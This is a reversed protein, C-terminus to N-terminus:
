FSWHAFHQLLEQLMAESDQLNPLRPSPFAAIRLVYDRGSAHLHYHVPSSHRDGVGQGQRFQGQAPHGIRRPLGLACKARQHKYRKAFAQAATGVADLAQWVNRGSLITEFWGNGQPCVRRGLDVMQRLSPSEARAVRFGDDPLGCADRLKKGLTVFRAAFFEDLEPPTQFQGFGKRSKSGVGGLACLWWLPAQAQELVVEKGIPRSSAPIPQGRADRLVFHAQRAHLTLTWRTGAPVYCRQKGGDNMGYSHYWLGQTTKRDPPRPLANKRAEAQKDYAVAEVKGLPRVELRIAGGAETDGWLAAEMSRLTVVDVYGAHMARWWWRLLGRLTAPRLDCDDAKQGAGALFGPTALELTAPFVDRGAPAAPVPGDPPRFSGYGAVTKAGCGLHTLAGDLWERAQRLLEDPVDDRRKALYGSFGQGASVALFYVPVPGHWDGPPEPPTAQYYGDHHNNCIDVILKPLSEPWADHFVIAGAAAADEDGHKGAGDPKWPKVEGKGLSDSGPAWGFVREITRWGDVRNGSPLSCLWVTEAYARAMGKLGTGPLYAFGYVPHLCLGANELATARALHLTLPGATTRKWAIARRALVDAQFQENRRHRVERLLDLDGTARIAEALVEKQAEQNRAPCGFKDLQLGPHRQAVPVLALLRRLTEPLPVDQPPVAITRGSPPASPTPTRQPAPTPATPAGPRRVNRATPGRENSGREFEVALGAKLDAPTLDRLDRSGFFTEAGDADDIIWGIKKDTLYKKIKGRAM